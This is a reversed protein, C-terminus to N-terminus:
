KKIHRRIYSESLRIYRNKPDIKKAELTIELATEYDGRLYYVGALNLRPYIFSSDIKIGERFSKEAIDLLHEKKEISKQGKSKQSHAIGFENYGFSIERIEKDSLKSLDYESIKELPEELIDIAEDYKRRKNYEEVRVPILKGILEDLYQDPDKLKKQTTAIETDETEDASVPRIIGVLAITLGVVIITRIFAKM